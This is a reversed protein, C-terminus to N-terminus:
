HRVSALPNQPPSRSHQGLRPSSLVGAAARVRDEVGAKLDEISALRAVCLAVAHM